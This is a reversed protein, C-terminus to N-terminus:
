SSCRFDASPRDPIQDADALRGAGRIRDDDRRDRDSSRTLPARRRLGTRATSGSQDIRTTSYGVEFQASCACRTRDQIETRDDRRCSSPPGAAHRRSSVHFDGCRRRAGAIRLIKRFQRARYRPRHLGATRREARDGQPRARDDLRRHHSQIGARGAPVAIEPGIQLGQFLGSRRRQRCPGALGQSSNILAATRTSCTSPASM